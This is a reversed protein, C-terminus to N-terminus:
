AGDSPPLVHGIRWLVGSPDVLPFDRLGWSRDEPPEIRLQYKGILGSAIVHAHWADANDVLLHMMFNNTHDAVYFKQLLFGTTGHRVSALEHTSWAIEFGLTAYFDKSKEFHRAPVFAKIEIASLTM